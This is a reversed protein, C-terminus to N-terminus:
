VNIRASGHWGTAPLIKKRRQDLVGLVHFSYRVEWTDEDIPTLGLPEHALVESVYILAGQWKIEGNHRVQRVTVGSEYEVPSLIGPYPRPSASYVEGPIKRGLAEHSRHWNYEECFANYRRQQASLPKTM